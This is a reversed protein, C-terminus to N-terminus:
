SKMRVFVFKPPILKTTPMTYAIPLIPPMSFVGPFQLVSVHAAEICAVQGLQLNSMEEALASM